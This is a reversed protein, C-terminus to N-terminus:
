KKKELLLDSEYQEPNAEINKQILNLDSDTLFKFLNQRFEMNDNKKEYNELFTKDVPVLTRIRYSSGPTILVDTPDGGKKLTIVPLKIGTIVEFYGSPTKKVVVHGFEEPNSLNYMEQFSISYFAGTNTNKGVGELLARYYKLKKNTIDEIKM